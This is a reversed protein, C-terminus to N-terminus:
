YQIFDQGITFRNPFYLILNKRLIEKTEQMISNLILILTSTILNDTSEFDINYKLIEKVNKIHM